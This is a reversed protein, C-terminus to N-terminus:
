TRKAAYNALFLFCTDALSGNKPVGGSERLQNCMQLMRQVTEEGGARLMDAMIGDKSPSKNDKLKKTACLPTSCHRYEVAHLKFVTSLKETM